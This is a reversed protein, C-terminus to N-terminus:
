DELASKIVHQTKDTYTEGNTIMEDALLLARLLVENKRVLKEEEEIMIKILKLKICSDDELKEIMEKLEKDSM